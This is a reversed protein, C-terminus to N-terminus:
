VALCEYGGLHHAIGVLAKTTLVLCQQISKVLVYGILFLSYSLVPNDTGQPCHLEGPFVSCREYFGM